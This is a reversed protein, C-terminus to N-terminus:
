NCQENHEGNNLFEKLATTPILVRTGARVSRITGDNILRWALSLGIGLSRSLEPVTYVYKAPDDVVMLAAGLLDTASPAPRPEDGCRSGNASWPIM